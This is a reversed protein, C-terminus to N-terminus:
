RVAPALVERRDPSSRLAVVKGIGLLAVPVAATVVIVDGAVSFTDTVLLAASALVWSADAVATLRGAMLVTPSGARALGALVLGYGVLFVGVSRVALTADVDLADALPGALATVGAGGVVCIASDIRLLSRLRSIM